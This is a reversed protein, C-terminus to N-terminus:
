QGMFFRQWHTIFDTIKEPTIEFLALLSLSGIAIGLWGLRQNLRMENQLQRTDAEESLIQNVSVIQQTLEDNIGHIMMTQRIDHWLRFADYRNVKVPYSFFSRANFIISQKYLKKLQSYDDYDRALDGMIQNMAFLYGKALALLIIQRQFTYQHAAMPSILVTGRGDVHILRDSHRQLDAVELSSTKRVLHSAFYMIHEDPEYLKSHIYVANVVHRAHPLYAKIIQEAQHRLRTCFASKAMGEEWHATSFVVYLTQQFPSDIFFDLRWLGDNIEYFQCQERLVDLLFLIDLGDIRVPRATATDIAQDGEGSRYVVALTINKM